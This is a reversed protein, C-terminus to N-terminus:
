RPLDLQSPVQASADMRRGTGCGGRVVTDILTVTYFARNAVFIGQHMLFRKRPLQQYKIALNLASLDWKEVEIVVDGRKM